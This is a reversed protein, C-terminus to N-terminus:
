ADRTEDTSTPETSTPETSMPETSTPETPRIDTSRVTPRYPRYLVRSAGAMAETPTRNPRDAEFAALAATPDGSIEYLCAFRSAGEVELAPDREYRTASEWGPLRLLEPIHVTDYWADFEAERGPVADSVVLLVGNPHFVGSM